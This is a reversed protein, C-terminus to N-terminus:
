WYGRIDTHDKFGIGGIYFFFNSQELYMPSAIAPNAM